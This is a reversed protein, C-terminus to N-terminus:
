ASCNASFRSATKKAFELPDGEFSRKKPDGEYHFRIPVNRRLFDSTGSTLNSTTTWLYNNPRTINVNQGLLRMSLIPSLM